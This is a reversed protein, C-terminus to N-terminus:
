AIWRGGGRFVQIEEGGNLATLLDDYGDKDFDFVALALPGANPEIIHEAEFCIEGVM